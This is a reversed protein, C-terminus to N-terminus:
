RLTRDHHRQSRSRCCSFGIPAPAVPAATKEPETAAPTEETAAVDGEVAELMLIASGEAVTDGIAVLLEKVVGVQPAPIEMTAKDSEVSILSDEVAVTDGVAVLIEIVEVGDFDGINPIKIEVLSSM